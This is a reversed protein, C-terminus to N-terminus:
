PQVVGTMWAKRIKRGCVMADAYPLSTDDRAVVGYYQKNADIWPYFGGYGPSSFAGDGTSPDDEVWHGISYHWAEGLAQAVPSYQPTTCTGPTAMTCVAQSGLASGSLQIQGNIIRRLFTTYDDPSAKADGALTPNTYTISSSPSIVSSIELGLQSPTLNSLSSMGAAIWQFNGSGYHFKGVANPFQTSMSTNAFCTYVTNTSTTTCADGNFYGALMRIGSLDNSNLAGGRKEYLYAGFFWKGASYVNMNTSHTPPFPGRTGSVESGYANGVEWYFKPLASCATGNATNTAASVSTSTPPDTAFSQGAHGILLTAALVSGLVGSTSRSRATQAICKM